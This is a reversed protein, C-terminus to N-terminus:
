HIFKKLGHIVREGIAKVFSLINRLNISLSFRNMHRFISVLVSVRFHGTAATSLAVDFMVERLEFVGGIGYKIIASLAKTGALYTSKVGELFANAIDLSHKSVRVVHQAARLVAKAGNLIGSSRRVLVEAGRLGLTATRRAARCAINRAKCIPNTIHRCCTGWRPTCIRSRWIKRCSKGRFCRYCVISIVFYFM